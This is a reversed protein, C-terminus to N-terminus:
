KPIAQPANKNLNSVMSGVISKAFDTNSYSFSAKFRDANAQLSLLASHVDFETPKGDKKPCLNRGLQEILQKGETSNPNTTRLKNELFALAAKVEEPKSPPLFELNKVTLLAKEVSPDTPSSFGM